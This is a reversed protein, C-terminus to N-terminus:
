DRLLHPFHGNDHPCVHGDPGIPAGCRPCTPRGGAVAREIQIALTRARQLELRVVVAPPDDEDAEIDHAFVTVRGHDEDFGVALRGVHYEAIGPPVPGTPSPEVDSVRAAAVGASRLQAIMQDFAMGLAQLQQKELWLVVTDGGESFIMRFTRHGPTGIAEAEARQVDDFDFRQDAM